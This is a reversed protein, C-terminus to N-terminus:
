AFRLSKFLFTFVICTQLQVATSVVIQDNVQIVEDGALIKLYVDSSPQSPFHSVVIFKHFVKTKNKSRKRQIVIVSSLKVRATITITVM